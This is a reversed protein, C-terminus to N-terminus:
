MKLTGGESVEPKPLWGRDFFAVEKLFVKKRRFRKGVQPTARFFLGLSIQAKKECGTVVVSFPSLNTLLSQLGAIEVDYYKKPNPYSLCPRCLFLKLEM